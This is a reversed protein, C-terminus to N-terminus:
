HSSNLRTSKRDSLAPILAASAHVCFSLSIAATYLTVARFLRPTAKWEVGAAARVEFRALMVALALFPTARYPYTQQSYNM